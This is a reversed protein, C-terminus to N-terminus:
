YTTREYTGLGDGDDIVAPPLHAERSIIKHADANRETAPTAQDRPSRLINPRNEESSGGLGLDKFFPIKSFWFEITKAM